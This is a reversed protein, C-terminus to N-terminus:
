NSLGASMIFYPLNSNRFYLSKMYEGEKAVKGTIPNLNIKVIGEPMEYWGNGKDKMYKEMIDAWVYKVFRTDVNEILSSDDYGTWVGVVLDKNYGVMWNDTDTTGSKGAYKHTLLSAISSGTTNMMIALRNDFINTMTETLVYCDNKSHIQKSTKNSQYLINDDGDLIKTIYTPSVSKGLNALQAYGTVLETLYVESTGLALSVNNNIKTSFSFDKLTEVLAETGLYLHTKVAYINDSAAIAYAMSVERDPYLDGYNTPSYVSNELYFNTKTSTFTTAPTFGQTLAKYYLFPKIASGPQRLAKTARNFQSATYDKGGILSLVNGTKPDMAVIAIQLNSDKPYYKEISNLMIENLDYDFSTYIKLKNSSLNNALSLTELEEIITDQYYPANILSTNKHKGYITIDQKIAKEYEQNSIFKENKMEELVLNRRKLNNEENKIPSYYLPGKPIAALSAAEILSVESAHKNFYFLSADEIGYIGHDFYIANLYGELIEEKSYKTELNMAIMVEKIKREYSKENSLFIMRAYQQTITSAGEAIGGNKINALFAGGIRVVDIGKHTFFKKDEIAIFADIIYDNVEDLKVYTQRNENNLTAYLNGDNDYLEIIKQSPMNYDIKRYYYIFIIFCILALLIFIILLYKVLKLITRM